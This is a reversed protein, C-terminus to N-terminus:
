DVLFPHTAPKGVYNARLTLELGIHWSMEKKLRAPMEKEDILRFPIGRWRAYAPMNARTAIEYIIESGFRAELRALALPTCYFWDLEWASGARKLVRIIEDRTTEISALSMVQFDKPRVHIKGYSAWAVTFANRVIDSIMM